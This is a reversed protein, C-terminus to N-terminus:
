SVDSPIVRFLRPSNTQELPNFGSTSPRLRDTASDALIKRITKNHALHVQNSEHLNRAVAPLLFLAVSSFTQPIQPPFLTNNGSRWVVALQCRANNANHQAAAEKSTPSALNQCNNKMPRAHRTFRTINIGHSM